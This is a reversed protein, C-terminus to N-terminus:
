LCKGYHRRPSRRIDTPLKGPSSEGAETRPSRLNKISAPQKKQDFSSQLTRQVQVRSSVQTSKLQSGPHKRPSRRLEVVRGDATLYTQQLSKMKRGTTYPMGSSLAKNGHDTLNHVQHEGNRNTGADIYQPQEGSASPAYESDSDSPSMIDEFSIDDLSKGACAGVKGKDVALLLKAVKGMEVTSDQLRYFNKHVNLSHGLHDSLWHLQTENLNLVQSVTAIYKRMKTSRIVEPSKLAVEKTLERLCDCARLHSSATKQRAFFYKNSNTIGATTRQNCLIEMAEKCDNPIMVAVKRGRKGRIYMMDLSDLLHRELSSLNRHVEEQRDKKWRPRDVYASLPFQEMEGARRRNFVTLRTLVLSQLRRYKEPSPVSSIEKVCTEINTELYVVLKKIDESEPLKDVKNYKRLSASARALSSVKENWETTYLELFKKCEREKNKDNTRIAFARKLETLRRINYGLKLAVSPKEDSSQNEMDGTGYNTGASKAYGTTRGSTLLVAQVIDDFYQPRLFDSISMNDDNCVRLNKLLRASERMKQSTYYKRKTQDMDCCRHWWSEGLRCILDDNKAIKSLEDARMGVFVKHMGKMAPNKEMLIDSEYKIDASNKVEDKEKSPCVCTYKVHKWLDAKHYYGLCAPCPGYERLNVAKTPRRVLILEGRGKSIM